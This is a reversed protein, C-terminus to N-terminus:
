GFYTSVAMVYSLYQQNLMPNFVYAANGGGRGKVHQFLGYKILICILAFVPFCTIMSDQANEVPQL